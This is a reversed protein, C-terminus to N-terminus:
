KASALDEELQRIEEVYPMAIQRLQALENPDLVVATRVLIPGTM